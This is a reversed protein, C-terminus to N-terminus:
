LPPGSRTPFTTIALGRDQAVYGQVVYSQAVFGQAVSAQGPNAHDIPMLQVCKEGDHAFDAPNVETQSWGVRVRAATIASRVSANTDTARTITNM